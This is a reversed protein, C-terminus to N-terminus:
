RLGKSNPRVFRDLLPVLANMLLIASAMAQPPSIWFRLVATLIGAGIAFCSRGERTVPTTVWDTVFFFACLFISGNFVEHIPPRGTVFSSTGVAGLYFVPSEWPIWRKAISIAGSVFIALLFSAGIPKGLEYPFLAALTLYGVLSPHFLNQGLGGFIEKGIIVAVFSGAAVMWWPTTPALLFAFLVAILVTSGNQIQHRQGFLVRFLYEFGVASVIAISLIRLADWGFLVLSGIGIPLLAASTGWLIKSTSHAARLHPGAALSFPADAKGALPFPM